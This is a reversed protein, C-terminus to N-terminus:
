FRVGLGTVLGGPPSFKVANSLLNVLVQVIRDADAWIMSTVDPAEVTV